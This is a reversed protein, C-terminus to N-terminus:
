VIHCGFWTVVLGQRGWQVVVFNIVAFQTLLTVSFTSTM